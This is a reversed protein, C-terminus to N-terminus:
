QSRHTQARCADETSQAERADKANTHTEADQRLAQQFVHWADQDEASLTTPDGPMYPMM